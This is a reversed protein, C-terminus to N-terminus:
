KDQPHAGLSPRITIRRRCQIKRDDVRRRLLLNGRSDLHKVPITLRINRRVRQEDAAVSDVALNGPLPGGPLRQALEGALERIQMGAGILEVGVPAAPERQEGPAVPDPDELTVLIPDVRALKQQAGPLRLTDRHAELAPTVEGFLAPEAGIRVQM